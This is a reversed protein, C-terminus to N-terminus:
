SDDPEGAGDEVQMQFEAMRKDLMEFVERDDEHIPGPEPGSISERVPGSEAIPQPTLVLVQTKDGRMPDEHTTAAQDITTNGPADPPHPSTAANIDDQIRAPPEDPTATDVPAHDSTTTDVPTHVLADGTAGPTVSDTSTM